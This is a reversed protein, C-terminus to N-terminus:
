PSWVQLSGYYIATVTKVTGAGDTVKLNTVATSGLYVKRISAVVPTTGTPAFGLPSLITSSGNFGLPTLQYNTVAM